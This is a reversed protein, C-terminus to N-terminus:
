SCCRSTKEPFRKSYNIAGGIYVLGGILYAWGYNSNLPKTGISELYALYTFPLGASLGLIIFLWARVHRYEPKAFFKLVSVTFAGACSITILSLWFTSAGKLEKCPFSYFMIPYSSGMILVSIGGYDLRALFSLLEKNRFACLHFISSCSLCFVASCLNVILPWRATYVLNLDPSINEEIKFNM